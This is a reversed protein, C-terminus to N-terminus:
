DPSVPAVSGTPLDTGEVTEGVAVVGEIPVTRERALRQAEERALQASSLPVARDPVVVDVAVFCVFMALAGAMVFDTSPAEEKQQGIVDNTGAPRIGDPTMELTWAMALAVPLGAWFVATVIADFSEPLLFNTEVVTALQVLLWAIVGYVAAVRLVHRKQLEQILDRM